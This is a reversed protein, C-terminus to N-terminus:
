FYNNIKRALQTKNLGGFPIGLSKAMFELDSMSMNPDARSAKVRQISKTKKSPMKMTKPIVFGNNSKRSKSVARLKVERHKSKRSKRSNPAKVKRLSKRSKRSRPKGHGTM